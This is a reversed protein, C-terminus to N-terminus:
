DLARRSKLNLLAGDIGPSVPATFLETERRSSPRRAAAMRPVQLDQGVIVARQEPAHARDHPHRHRGEVHAHEERGTLREVIVFIKAAVFTLSWLTGLM